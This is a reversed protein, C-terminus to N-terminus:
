QPPQAPTPAPLADSSRAATRFGVGAVDACYLGGVYVFYWRETITTNLLGEANARQVAQRYAREAREFYGIPILNFLLMGCASGHADGTTVFQPPPVPAIKVFPGSCGALVAAALFSACRRIM